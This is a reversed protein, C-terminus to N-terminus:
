KDMVAEMVPRPSRPPSAAAPPTAASRGATRSSCRSPSRRPQRAPAFAVFWAHPTRTPRAHQATGTKGAVKVGPIQAATGTGHDVVGIMMQTLQAAVQPSCRRTAAGAANTKSVVTLDPRRIQDVLYPKMVTGNNAIAPARGDRDAAAHAPRRVPRDGVPRDAAPQPQGPLRQDRTPSRADTLNSDDFGFASPRPRLATGASSSASRRRVRHQLLDAARRRPDDPREQRLGRRRLQEAANSTQPLTLADPAPIVRTPPTLRQRARGGVHGDQVDVGAPLTAAIARNVLPNSPDANLAQRLGGRGPATDHHRATRTTRPRAHGARPDRRHAPRARRGRGGPAKLGNYAAEQAKPNITLVVSGGQPHRGTLLDSLRGYSCGTTARRVARRGRRARHRDGGDALSYYGTVPAYEPGQPYTRQYKLRDDTPRSKPSPRAASSSRAARAATSAAAARPLQAPQEASENAQVVQM